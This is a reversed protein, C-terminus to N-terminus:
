LHFVPTEHVFERQTVRWTVTKSVQPSRRLAYVWRNGVSLPFYSKTSSRANQCVVTVCCGIIFAGLCLAFLSSPMKNTM